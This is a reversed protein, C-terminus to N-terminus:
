GGGIKVYALLVYRSSYTFLGVPGVENSGGINSTPIEKKKKLAARASKGVQRIQARSRKM